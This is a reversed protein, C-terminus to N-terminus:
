AAAGIDCGPPKIARSPTSTTGFPATIGPQLPCCVGEVCGETSDTYDATQKRDERKQRVVDATGQYWRFDEPTQQAALIEVFIKTFNDFKYSVTIHRHLSESNFELFVFVGAWYEASFGYVNPVTTRFSGNAFRDFESFRGFTLVVQHEGHECRRPRRCTNSRPGFGVFQCTKFCDKKATLRDRAAAENLWGYDTRRGLNRV